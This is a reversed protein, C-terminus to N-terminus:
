RAGRLLLFGLAFIVFATGFLQLDYSQRAYAASIDVASLTPTLTPVVDTPTVMVFSTPTPSQAAVVPVFCAFSVLIYVVTVLVRWQLRQMYGAVEQVIAWSHSLRLVLLNYRVNKLLM